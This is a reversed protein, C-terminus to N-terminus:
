SPHYTSTPLYPGVELTAEDTGCDTRVKPCPLERSGRALASEITNAHSLFIRGIEIELSNQEHELRQLEEDVDEGCSNGSYSRSLNQQEEILDRLTQIDERVEAFRRLIPFVSHPLVDELRRKVLARTELLAAAVRDLVQLDQESFPSTDSEADWKCPPATGSVRM